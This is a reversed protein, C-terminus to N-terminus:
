AALKLLFPLSAAQGVHSLALNRGEVRELASSLFSVVSLGGFEGQRNEFSESCKPEVRLSDKGQQSGAYLVPRLGVQVVKWGTDFVTQKFM